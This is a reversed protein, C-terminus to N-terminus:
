IYCGVNKLLVANSLSLWLFSLLRASAGQMHAEVLPFPKNIPMSMLMNEFELKQPWFSVLILM